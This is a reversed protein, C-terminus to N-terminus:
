PRNIAAAAEPRRYGLWLEGPPEPIANALASCPSGVYATRRRM